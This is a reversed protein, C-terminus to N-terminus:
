GSIEVKVPVGVNSVGLSTVVIQLQGLRVVGFGDSEIGVVHPSQVSQKHYKQVGISVLGKALSRTEGERGVSMRM